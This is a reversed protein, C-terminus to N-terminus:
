VGETWVSVKQGGVLREVLECVAVLEVVRCEQEVGDKARMADAIPKQEVIIQVVFGVIVVRIVHLADARLM